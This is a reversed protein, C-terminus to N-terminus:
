WGILPPQHDAFYQLLETHWRVKDQAQQEQWSIGALEAVEYTLEDISAQPPEMSPMEGILDLDFSWVLGSLVDECQPYAQMAAVVHDGVRRRNVSVGVNM